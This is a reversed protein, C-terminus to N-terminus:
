NLVCSGCCCCISRESAALMEDEYRGISSRIDSSSIKPPFEQSAIERLNFEEELLGVAFEVAESARQNEPVKRKKTIPCTPPNESSSHRKRTSVPLRMPTSILNRLPDFSSPQTLNLCQNFDSSSHTKRKKSVALAPISNRLPNFSSPPTSNHRQNFASSNTSNRSLDFSTSNYYQASSSISNRFPDFSLPPTSNHNQNFASSNISNMFPNFDSQSQSSAQPPQKPISNTFRTRSTPTSKSTDALSFKMSISNLFPDFSKSM